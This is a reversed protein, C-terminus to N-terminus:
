KTVNLTITSHQSSLIQGLKEKLTKSLEHWTCKGILSVEELVPLVNLANTARKRIVAVVRLYNKQHAYRTPLIESHWLQPTTSDNRHMYAKGMDILSLIDTARLPLQTINAVWKAQLSEKDAEATTKLSGGTIRGTLVFRFWSGGAAEVALITSIEVRLGTEEYVERIAADCISEGVEMRGAPLYWKRHEISLIGHPRHQPLEAGFLEIMFKRLTSHLSRQPHVEVTPFHHVNKESVLVNLANTARKRIVAVVRLYNKQHAYRTPLIESHWLQPTTTDNRHKYAKGIDILSLIDYARLPLQTIDAVWKAQLSEKDAQGTTKLSGGTIRGTLVFRFWSGGAAEVALLTNIEVNLGTEEYVERIAAECISEGVEMRGAPLYWKGICSKKAEQMALVEDNDNILVCAVIYTVTQGLIPVFDSATTPQIGQAEATANQEELSFDCLEQTIDGLDQGAIVGLLKQEISPLSNMQTQPM